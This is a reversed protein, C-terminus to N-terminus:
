RVTFSQRSVVRDRVTPLLREAYAFGIRGDSAAAAIRHTERGRFYVNTNTTDSARQTVPRTTYEIQIPTHQLSAAAVQPRSTYQSQHYPTVDRLQLESRVANGPERGNEVRVHPLYARNSDVSGARTKSTLSEGDHSQGFPLLLKRTAGTEAGAYLPQGLNSIEPLPAPTMQREIDPELKEYFRTEHALGHPAPRDPEHVGHPRASAFIRGEIVPLDPRHEVVVRENREAYLPDQNNSTWQTVSTSQRPLRSLPMLDEQRQVPPRFVGLKYPLSAQQGGNTNQMMVSVMPDVGRAYPLIAEKIRDYANGMDDLIENDQGVRTKRPLELSQKPQKQITPNGGMSWSDGVTGLGAPRYGIIANHIGIM